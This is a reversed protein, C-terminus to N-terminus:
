SNSLLKFMGDVSTKSRRKYMKFVELLDAKSRREELSLLWLSKLKDKYSLQKMSPVMGTFRHQIRDLLQKDKSYYPSWSWVSSRYNLHPRVLWLSRPPALVTNVSVAQLYYFPLIRGM